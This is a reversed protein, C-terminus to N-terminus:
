EVLPPSAESQPREQELPQRTYPGEAAGESSAASSVLASVGISLLLDEQGPPVDIVFLRVKISSLASALGRLFDRRTSASMSQFANWTVQIWSLPVADLSNLFHPLLFPSALGIQVGSQILMSCTRIFKLNEVPRDDISGSVLLTVTCRSSAQLRQLSRGLSRTFGVDGLSELQLPVFIEALLENTLRAENELFSWIANTALRDLRTALPSVSTFRLLRELPIPGYQPHNWEVSFLYGLSSRDAISIIERARPLLHSRMRSKSNLAHSLDEALRADIQAQKSPLTTVKRGHKVRYMAQDARHVLLDIDASAVRSSAVGLSATIFIQHGDIVVESSNLRQELRKAVAHGDRASALNVLAVVFEDGGLRALLDADKLGGRLRHAVVRLLEDGAAHGYSDNVAKFGNLDVYILSLYLNQDRHESLYRDVRNVFGRRSLASTLHDIEVERRLGDELAARETYDRLNCTWGVIEGSAARQGVISYSGLFVEGSKRVSLLDIEIKEGRNLADYLEGKLLKDRDQEDILQMSPIVTIEELTYGFLELATQNAYVLHQAPGVIVVGDGIQDLAKALSRNRDAEMLGFLHSSRYRIGASAVQAVERLANLSERDFHCFNRDLAGIGGWVSGNAERLPTVVVSQSRHRASALQQAERPEVFGFRLSGALVDRGSRVVYDALGPPVFTNSEVLTEEGVRATVLIVVDGERFVLRVEGCPVVDLTCRAVLSLWSELSISIDALASTLSETILVRRRLTKHLAEADLRELVRSVMRSVEELSRFESKIDDSQEPLVRQFLVLASRGRPGSGIPVVLCRVHERLAMPVPGYVVESPNCLFSRQLALVRVSEWPRPREGLLADRLSECDEGSSAVVSITSWTVNEQLVASSFFPGGQVLDRLAMALMELPPVEEELSVSLQTVSSDRLRVAHDEVSTM